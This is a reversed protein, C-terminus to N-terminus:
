QGLIRRTDEIARRIAIATQEYQAKKAAIVQVAAAINEPTLSDVFESIDGLFVRVSGDEAIVEYQIVHKGYRFAGVAADDIGFVFKKLWALM